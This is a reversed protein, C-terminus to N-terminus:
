RHSHSTAKLIDHYWKLYDDVERELSFRKRASEAAALGMEIRVEDNELLQTIRQEMMVSDGAPV